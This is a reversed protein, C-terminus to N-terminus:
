LKVNSGELDLAILRLERLTQLVAFAADYWALEKARISSENALGVSSRIREVEVENEKLQFTNLGVSLNLLLGEVSRQMEEIRTEINQTAKDLEMRAQLISESALNSTLKSTSRFLDTASFGISVSFTPEYSPELVPAYQLSLNIMPADSPNKMRADLEASRLKGLALAYSPDNEILLALLKQKDFLISPITTFLSSELAVQLPYETSGWVLSLSSQIGEIQRDIESLSYRLQNLMLTRSEYANRSIRGEALDKQADKLSAEDLTLQEGLLFRAEMLAQLSSLLSNGQSVLGNKLQKLSSRSNQVAIRQKELQKDGYTTDLLGDGVWLPQNVTLGISPSHTWNWTSSASNMAYSSSQKVSLTANAGTAFSKSVSAGIGFTNRTDFTLSGSSYSSTRSLSYLPSSSIGFKFGQERKLAELQESQMRYLSSLQDLSLNGADLADRLMRDADAFTPMSSDQWENLFAQLDEQGLQVVDSSSIEYQADLNPYSSATLPAIIVLLSISLLTLTKRM